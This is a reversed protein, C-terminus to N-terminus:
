NTLNALSWLQWTLQRDVNVFSKEESVEPGIQILNWKCGKAIPFLFNMNKKQGPWMVLITAMGM